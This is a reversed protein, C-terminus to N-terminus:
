GIVDADVVMSELVEESIAGAQQLEGFLEVIAEALEGKNMEEFSQARERLALEDQETEIKIIKEAAQLRVSIPSKDPDIGDLFVQRIKDAHERAAEAVVEAARKTKKNRGASLHGFQGGVKGDEQLERIRIKPDSSYYSGDPRLSRGNEDKTKVVAERPEVAERKAADIFPNSASSAPSAPATQMFPNDSM